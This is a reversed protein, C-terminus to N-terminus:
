LYSSGGCWKEKGEPHAIFILVTLSQIICQEFFCKLIYQIKCFQAIGAVGEM